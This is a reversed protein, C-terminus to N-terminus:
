RKIDPIVYSRFEGTRRCNKVSTREEPRLFYLADPEYHIASINRVLPAGERDVTAFALVGVLQMKKLCTQLDMVKEGERM